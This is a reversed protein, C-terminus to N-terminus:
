EEEEFSDPNVTFGLSQLFEPRFRKEFKVASVLSPNELALNVPFIKHVNSMYFKEIGAELNQGLLQCFDSRGSFETALSNLESWEQQDRDHVKVDLQLPVFVRQDAKAHFYSHQGKLNLEKSLVQLHADITKNGSVYLGSKPNVGQVVSEEFPGKAMCFAKFGCYEVSCALPIRLSFDKKKRRQYLVSDSLFDLARFESGARKLHHDDYVTVIDDVERQLHMIEVWTLRVVM